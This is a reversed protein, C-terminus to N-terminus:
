TPGHAGRDWQSLPRHGARSDRRDSRPGFSSRSTLMSSAPSLRTQLPTFDATHVDQPPLSRMGGLSWQPSALLLQGRQVRGVGWVWVGSLYCSDVTTLLWPSEPGRTTSSCFMSLCIPLSPQPSPPGPGPHPSSCGGRQRLWDGLGRPGQPAKCRSTLQETAGGPWVSGERPRRPTYPAGRNHLELGRLQTPAERAPGRPRAHERDLAGPCQPAPCLGLSWGSSALLM